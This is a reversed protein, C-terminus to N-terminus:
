EFKIKGIIRWAIAITIYVFYLWSNVLIFTRCNVKQPISKYSKWVRADLSKEFLKEIQMSKIKEYDM